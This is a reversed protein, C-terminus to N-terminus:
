GLGVTVMNENRLGILKAKLMISVEKRQDKELSRDKVKDKLMSKFAERDENKGKPATVSSLLDMMLHGADDKSEWATMAEILINLDNLSLKDM